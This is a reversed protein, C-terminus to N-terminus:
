AEGSMEGWQPLDDPTLDVAHEGSQVTAAAKHLFTEATFAIVQPPLGGTNIILAKQEEGAEEVFAPQREVPILVGSSAKGDAALLVNCPPDRGDIASLEYWDGAVYAVLAM